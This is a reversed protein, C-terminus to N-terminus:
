QDDRVLTGQREGVYGESILADIVDVCDGKPIDYANAAVVEFEERDLPFERNQLLRIIQKGAPTSLIEPRGSAREEDTDAEETVTEQAVSEASAPEAQVADQEGDTLPDTTEPDSEDSAEGPDALAAGDTAPDATTETTTDDDSEFVSDTDSAGNESETTPESDLDKPQKETVPEESGQDQSAETTSDATATAVSEAQETASPEVDEYDELTTEVSGTDGMAEVTHELIGTLKQRCTPCLSVTQETEVGLSEPAVPSSEVPADLATGCFYCSSLDSM